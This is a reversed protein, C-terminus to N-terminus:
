RWGSYFSQLESAATQRLLQLANRFSAVEEATLGRAAEHPRLLINEVTRAARGTAAFGVTQGIGVIGHIRRYTADVAEFAATEGALDPLAAFTDEIKSELASVFRERVRALREAFLDVAM